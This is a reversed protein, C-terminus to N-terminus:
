LVEMNFSEDPPLFPGGFHLKNTIEDTKLLITGLFKGNLDVLDVHTINRVLEPNSAEILIYNGAGSFYLCMSFM